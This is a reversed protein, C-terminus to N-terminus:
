KKSEKRVKEEDEEQPRLSTDSVTESTEEGPAVTFSDDAEERKSNVTDGFGDAEEKPKVIAKRSVNVSIDVSQLKQQQNTVSNVHRKRRGVEPTTKESPKESVKESTKESTSPKNSILKTNPFTLQTKVIQGSVLEKYKEISHLLRVLVDELGVQEEFLSKPLRCLKQPEFPPDMWVQRRYKYVFHFSPQAKGPIMLPWSNVQLFKEAQAKTVERISHIEDIIFLDGHHMLLPIPLTFNKSTSDKYVEPSTSLLPPCPVFASPCLFLAEGPRAIYNTPSCKIQNIITQTETTLTELEKIEPLTIQHHKYTPDSGATATIVPVQECSCVNESFVSKHFLIIIAVWFLGLIGKKM